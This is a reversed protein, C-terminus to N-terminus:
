KVDLDIEKAEESEEVDEKEGGEKDDFARLLSEQDDLDRKLLVM